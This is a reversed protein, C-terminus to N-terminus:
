MLKNLYFKTKKSAAYSFFFELSHDTGSSDYDSINASFDRDWESEDGTDYTNISEEPYNLM